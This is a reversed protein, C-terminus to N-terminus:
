NSYLKKLIEETASYPDIEREVIKEILKEFDGEKMIGLLHNILQENVLEIIEREINKKHNIELLNSAKLYQLHREITEILEPTGINKTAVTKLVLPKWKQDAKEEHGLDVMLTLEMALKDAGDRDAKNVVLIDAIELIGAKMIQIEDGFGPVSLVLVTHAAKVIDVEDQGTGVTEVIIVDKGLADLIRIADKTAKSLGGLAGRTALSRIFVDKDTFHNGMRIRDGLIAGGTFPSSPDVCIVGVTKDKKRFETIMSDVLTSKGSGPSGTVGIVHAKGTHPYILRIAERADPLENEIHTILRAAARMDGSLLRKVLEM